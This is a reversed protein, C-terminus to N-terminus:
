PHRDNRTHAPQGADQILHIVQGLGEFTLALQGERDSALQSTLALFYHNRADHWSETNKGNPPDFGWIASSLGSPLGRLGASDWSRLPDHFHNLPRPLDDERVAGSGLWDRISRQNVMLEVGDGALNSSFLLRAYFNSFRFRIDSAAAADESLLRHTDTGYALASRAGTLALVLVLLSLLQRYAM